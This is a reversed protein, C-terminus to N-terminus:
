TCAWVSGFTPRNSTSISARHKWGRGTGTGSTSASTRKTLRPTWASVRSKNVKPVAVIHPAIKKLMKGMATVFLQAPAMVHRDYTERNRDFWEKNNNKRLATFFRVTEKTFGSFIPDDSM